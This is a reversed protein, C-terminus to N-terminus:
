ELGLLFSTDDRPILRNTSQGSSQRSILECPLTTGDASVLFQSGALEMPSRLQLIRHEITNGVFFLKVSIQKESQGIRLLRGLVQRLRGLSMIPECILLHGASQLGDVGHSAAITSVLMINVSRETAFQRIVRARNVIRVEGTLKMVRNAVYQAAPYKERFFQALHLELLKLFSTFASIIVIKADRNCELISEVASLVAQTKTSPKPKSEGISLHTSTVGPQGQLAEVDLQTHTRLRHGPSRISLRRKHQLPSGERQSSWCRFASDVHYKSGDGRNEGLVLSSHLCAQRLRTTWELSNVASAMAGRRTSALEKGAMSEIRRYLELEHSFVFSLLQLKLQVSPLALRRMPVHIGIKRLLTKCASCEQKGQKERRKLAGHTRRLVFREHQGEAPEESCAADGLFSACCYTGTLEMDSHGANMSKGTDDGTGLFGLLRLLRSPDGAPDGALDGAPSGPTATLGWRYLASIAHITSALWKRRLVLHAEDLVLREWGFGVLFCRVCSCREGRPGWLAVSNRRPTWPTRVAQRSGAEAQAGRPWVLPEARTSHPTRADRLKRQYSCGSSLRSLRGDLDCSCGSNQPSSGPTALTFSSPEQPRERHSPEVSSAGSSSSDVTAFFPDEDQGSLDNDGQTTPLVKVRQVQQQKKDKEKRPRSPRCLCTVAILSEYSALVVQAGQLVSPTLFTGTERLHRPINLVKLNMGCIRHIEAEWQPVLSAPALVLSRREVEGREQQAIGPRCSEAPAEPHPPQVTAAILSVIQLTKGLGPDDALIGGGCPPFGIPPGRQGLSPDLGQSLPSPVGEIPLRGERHLMWLLGEVQFAYLGKGLIGELQRVAVPAGSLQRRADLSCHSSERGVACDVNRVGRSGRSRTSDNQLDQLHKESDRSDTGTRVEHVRVASSLARGEAIQLVQQLQDPPQQRVTDAATEQKVVPQARSDESCVTETAMAGWLGRSSANNTANGNSNCDEEEGALQSLEEVKQKKLPSPSGVWSSGSAEGGLPLRSFRRATAEVIARSLSSAALRATSKLRGRRRSSSSASSPTALGSPPGGFPEHAGHLQRRRTPTVYPSAIGDPAGSRSCSHSATAAIGALAPGIPATARARVTSPSSKAGLAALQPRRPTSPESLFGNYPNESECTATLTFCVEESPESANVQAAGAAAGAAQPVSVVARATAASPAEQEAATGNSSLSCHLPSGGAASSVCATAKSDAAAPAIATSAAVAAPAASKPGSLIAETHRCDAATPVSAVPAPGGDQETLQTPALLDAEEAARPGSQQLEIDGSVASSSPSSSAVEAPDPTYARWATGQPGGQSEAQSWTGKVLWHAGPGSATGEVTLNGPIRAGEGCSSPGNLGGIPSNAAAVPLDISSSPPPCSSRGSASMRTPDGPPDGASTLPVGDLSLSIECSESNSSAGLPQPTPVKGQFAAVAAEAAKQIQTATAANARARIEALLTFESPKLWFRSPSTKQRSGLRNETTKTQAASAASIAATVAALGSSHFARAATSSCGKGDIHVACPTDSRSGRDTRHRWKRPRATKPPTAPGTEIAPTGASVGAAAEEELSAAALQLGEDLALPQQDSALPQIPAGPAGQHVSAGQSGEPSSGYLQSFCAVGFFSEGKGQSLSTM